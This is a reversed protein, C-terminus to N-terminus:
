RALKLRDQERVRDRAQLRRYVAKRQDESMPKPPNDSIDRGDPPTLILQSSQDLAEQREWGEAQLKEAYRVAEVVKAELIVELQSLDNSRALNLILEPENDMLWELRAKTLPDLFM